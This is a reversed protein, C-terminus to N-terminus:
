GVMAAAAPGILPEATRVTLGAGACSTLMAIVGALPRTKEPDVIGNVAVPVYESPLVWFIVVATVQLASGALTAVIEFEAPLWPSTVASVEPEALMPAEDPAIELLAGSKTTAM